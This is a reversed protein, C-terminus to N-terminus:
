LLEFGSKSIFFSHVASAVDVGHDVFSEIEKILRATIEVEHAM